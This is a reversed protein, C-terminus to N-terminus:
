MIFSKYVKISIITKKYSFIHYIIAFMENIQIHEFKTIYVSRYTNNKEHFKM